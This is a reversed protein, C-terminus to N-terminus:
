PFQYADMLFMNCLDIVRDLVYNFWAKIQKLGFLTSSRNTM